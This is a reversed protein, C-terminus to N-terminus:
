NNTELWSGIGDIVEDPQEGTDVDLLEHDANELAIITFNPYNLEELVAIAYRAPYSRDELGYMWLVPIDITEIIPLPDFGIEGDFNELQALAEEITVEPDDTLSCYLNEKGTPTVGGSTMIIYALNNNESFVLSNVWAGQSSGLLGIRDNDIRVHQVLLDIIGLVDDARASLFETVTTPTETPYSGTSNGVGRKDYVYVAYGSGNLVAVNAEIEEASQSRSENGSGPVVIMSPFPGEGDPLFLEGEITATGSATLFIGEGDVITADDTKCSILFFLSFICVSTISNRYM